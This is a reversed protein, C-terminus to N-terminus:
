IFVLMFLLVFSSEYRIDLSYFIGVPAPLSSCMVGVRQPLHPPNVMKLFHKMIFSDISGGSLVIRCLICIFTNIASLHAHQCLACNSSTEFQQRRKVLWFELTSVHISFGM